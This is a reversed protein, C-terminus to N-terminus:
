EARGDDPWQTLHPLVGDPDRVHAVLAGHGEREPPAVRAGCAGTDLLARAQARAAAADQVTVRLM